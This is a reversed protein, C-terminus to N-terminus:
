IDFNDDDNNGLLQQAETKPRQQKLRIFHSMMRAKIWLQRVRYQKQIPTMEEWPINVKDKVILCCCFYKTWFCESLFKRM